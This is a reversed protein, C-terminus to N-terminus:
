ARRSGRSRPSSPAAPAPASPRAPRDPPDRDPRAPRPRSRSSAQTAPIAPFAVAMFAQFQALTHIVAVRAGAAEWQALRHEQLPTPNQGPQKLECEVHTGALLFYIDPDGALTYVSGHRKRVVAAPYHGELYKLVTRKLGSELGARRMGFVELDLWVRFGVTFPYVPPPAPCNSVGKAIRGKECLFLLKDRAPPTPPTFGGYRERVHTRM